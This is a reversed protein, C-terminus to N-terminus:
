QPSIDSSCRAKTIEIEFALYGKNDFYMVVASLDNELFVRPKESTCWNHVLMSTLDARLDADVTSKDLDLRYRYGVKADGIRMVATLTTIDDLKVPLTQQFQEVLLNLVRNKDEQSLGQADAVQPSVSAFAAILLTRFALM